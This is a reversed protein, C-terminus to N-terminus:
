KDANKRYVEIIKEMEGSSKGAIQQGVLWVANYIKIKRNKFDEYIFDKVVDLSGSLRRVVVSPMNLGNFWNKKVM